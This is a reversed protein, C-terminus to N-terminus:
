MKLFRSVALSSGLAGIVAGGGVLGAMMSSELFGRGAVTPFLPSALNFTPAVFRYAAFLVGLALGAGLGGQLMGEVLFPARIYAKTAGVLRMIEIEQARAYVALRITNSVIMASGLTLVSGIIAGLLRILRAAQSIREVWEQGYQIDEVGELRSLFASLAKLAESSQYGERIKLQFSAPLPNDGLGELLSEQGKLERRFNALAEEKSTFTFTKIAAENEIRRRLMELQLPTIQNDLFVSVQFQEQWETVLANFHQILLLFIGIIVFSVAISAISALGGWGARVLNILAYTLLHKLKEIM